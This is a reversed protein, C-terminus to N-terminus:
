VGCHTTVGTFSSVNVSCLLINKYESGVITADSSLALKLRTGGSPLPLDFRRFTTFINFRVPHAIAFIETVIIAM